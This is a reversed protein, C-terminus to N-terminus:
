SSDNIYAVVPPSFKILFLIQLHDGTREGWSVVVPFVTVERHLFRAAMKVSHGVKIRGTILCVAM